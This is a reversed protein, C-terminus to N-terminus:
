AGIWVVDHHSVHKLVVNGLDITHAVIRIGRHEGTHSDIIKGELLGYDKGQAFVRPKLKVAYGVCEDANSLRRPEGLALAVITPKGKGMAKSPSSSAGIRQKPKAVPKPLGKGISSSSRPLKAM